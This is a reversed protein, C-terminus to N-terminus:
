ILPCPMRTGQRSLFGRRILLRVTPTHDTVLIIHWYCLLATPRVSPPYQVDVRRSNHIHTETRMFCVCLSKPCIRVQHLPCNTGDDGSYGDGDPLEFLDYALAEQLVSAAALNIKARNCIRTTLLRPHM